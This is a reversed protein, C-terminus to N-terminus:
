VAEVFAPAVHLRAVINRPRAAPRQELDALATADLNAARQLSVLVLRNQLEEGVEDPRVLLHKGNPIRQVMPVVMGVFLREGRRVKDLQVLCGELARGM